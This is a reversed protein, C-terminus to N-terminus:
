MMNVSKLYAYTQQKHAAIKALISNLGNSYAGRKHRKNWQFFVAIALALKGPFPKITVFTKLMIKEFETEIALNDLDGNTCAQHFMLCAEIESQKLQKIITQHLKYALDQHTPQLPEPKNYNIKLFSNSSKKIPIKGDDATDQLALEYAQRLEQFAKPDDEPNTTKVKKAYARKIIAKDDTPEIGLIDWFDSM